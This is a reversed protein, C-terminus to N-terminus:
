RIREKQCKLEEATQDMWGDGPRGAAPVEYDEPSLGARAARREIRERRIRDANQLRPASHAARQACASRFRQPHKQSARDDASTM